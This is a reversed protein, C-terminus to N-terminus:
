MSNMVKEEFRLKGPSTPRCKRTSSLRVCWTEGGGSDQVMIHVSWRTEDIETPFYGPYRYDGDEVVQDPQAYM